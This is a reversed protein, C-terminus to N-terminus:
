EEESLALKIRELNGRMLSEYTEGNEFEDSTVNHATHFLLSKAGTEECITNAVKENSMEIFFVYGINDEKVKNILFSITKGSAESEAMCGPFAAFYDLGYELTFYILPFRDAVIIEKRNSNEIISRFEDDLMDIKKAYAEGNQRFSDAHEEFNDALVKSIERVLLAANKPSSWVHEDYEVETESEEKEEETMGEKFEEPVMTVFDSLKIVVKEGDINELVGEVWADSEGGVYVIVESNQIKMLDNPTMEYSHIEVGPKLLMSVNVDEESGAISRAFDYCPFNLCVIDLTDDKENEKVECGALMLSLSIMLVLSLGKLLRKM